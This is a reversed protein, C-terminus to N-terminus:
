LYQIDCYLWSHFLGTGLTVFVPHRSFGKSYNKTYWANLKQQQVKPRNTKVKKCACYAIRATTYMQM